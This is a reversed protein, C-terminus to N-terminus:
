RPEQFAKLRDIIPKIEDWTKKPIYRELTKLQVKNELEAVSEEIERLIRKKEEYARSVRMVEYQLEDSRKNCFEVRERASVLEKRLTSVSLGLVIIVVILLAIIVWKM